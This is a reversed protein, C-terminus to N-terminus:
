VPGVQPSAEPEVAVGPGDAAKMAGMHTDAGPTVSPPVTPEVTPEPSPTPEVTPEPTPEPSGTPTAPAGGPESPGGAGGAAGAGGPVGPEPPPKVGGGAGAAAAPSKGPASPSASAVPSRGGEGDADPGGRGSTDRGYGGNRGSVGIGGDSEAAVEQKGASAGPAPKAGEDGVSMCGSLGACAAVALAAAAWRVAPTPLPRM